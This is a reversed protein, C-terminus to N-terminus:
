SGYCLIGLGADKAHELFVNTSRYKCGKTIMVGIGLYTCKPTKRKGKMLSEIFGTSHLESAVSKENERGTGRIGETLRNQVILPCVSRSMALLRDVSRVTQRSWKSLLLAPVVIMDCPKPLIVAPDVGRGRSLCSCM